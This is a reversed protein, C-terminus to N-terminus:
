VRVCFPEGHVVRPRQIELAIFARAQYIRHCHGPHSAQLVELCPQMEAMWLPNGLTAAKIRAQVTDIAAPCNQAVFEQPLHFAIYAACGPDVTIEVDVNLCHVAQPPGPCRSWDPEWSASTVLVSPGGVAGLRPFAWKSYNKYNRPKRRRLTMPPM